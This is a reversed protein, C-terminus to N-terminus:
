PRPGTTPETVFIRDVGFNFPLRCLLRVHPTNKPPNTEGQSMTIAQILRHSNGAFLDRLQGPRRRIIVICQQIDAGIVTDVRLGYLNM